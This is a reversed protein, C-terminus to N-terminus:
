TKLIFVIFYRPIIKIVTKDNAKITPETTYRDFLNAIYKGVNDKLFHSHIRPLTKTNIIAPCANEIVEFIAPLHNEMTLEM